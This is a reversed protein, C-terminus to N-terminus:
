RSCCVALVQAVRANAENRQRAAHVVLLQQGCHLVHTLRGLSDALILDLPHTRTHQM